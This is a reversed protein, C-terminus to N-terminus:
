KGGMLENDDDDDDPDPVPAPIPIPIPVPIPADGDDNRDADTAPIVADRCGRCVMETVEEKDETSLLDVTSSREWGRPTM